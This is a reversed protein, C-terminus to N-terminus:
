MLVARVHECMNKIESISTSFWQSSQCYCLCDLRGSYDTSITNTLIVLNFPIVGVRLVVKITNTFVFTENIRLSGKRDLLNLNHMLIALWDLKTASTNRHQIKRM